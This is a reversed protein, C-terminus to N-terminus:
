NKTKSELKDDAPYGGGCQTSISLWSPRGAKGLDGVKKVILSGVSPSCRSWGWGFHRPVASRDPSKAVRIFRGHFLNNM